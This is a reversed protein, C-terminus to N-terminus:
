QRFRGILWLVISIFFSALLCSGLPFYFSFGDRRITIDGPLHGLWPLRPSCILLTGAGAIVAALLLLARGLSQFDSSM